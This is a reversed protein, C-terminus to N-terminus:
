NLKRVEALLFARRHPIFTKLQAIGEHIDGGGGWRAREAVADGALDAELQDLFPFIKATTFEAELVETLRKAFRARLGADSFFREEMRNWGTVSPQKRTGLLLPMKAQSFSGDWHDGLTRDLDWPLVLWKKTGSGDYVLFHNKNFGDWNQTLATAALFNVYHDLDVRKQFFDGADTTNALDRCFSQLAEDGAAQKSELSYNSRFAGPTGLDREDAQNARGLAKFVTAGKLDHRRLFSKSPQEVEIYLGRFKGNADLRVVRAQGAPAGCVSYLHYALVERVFAPDRWGSNLNLSHRENFPHAEDFIIKLSKKPWSRSWQGRVRVQVRGQDVGESQFSAPHTSNQYDGGELAALDQPAMTLEYRPLRATKSVGREVDRPPKISVASERPAALGDAVPLPRQRAATDPNRPRGCGSGLAAVLALIWIPKWVDGFHEAVTLWQNRKLFTPRMNFYYCSPTAKGAEASVTVHIASSALPALANEVRVLSGSSLPTGAIPTM